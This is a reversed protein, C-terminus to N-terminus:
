VKIFIKRKYLIWLPISCIVLWLIAMLLSANVPSINLQVLRSFMWPQVYIPEGDFTSIPFTYAVKAMLESFMYAVIANSGFALAVELPIKLKQIDLFYYFIALFIMAFGSTYVVFSSTWLSKNIPFVSGWIWGLGMLALAVLLLRVIITKSDHASSMWIASLTGILASSIAPITSTLGEPDWTKTHAWMHGKLIFSDLWA